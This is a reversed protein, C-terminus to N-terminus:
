IFTLRRKHNITQQGARSVGPPEEGFLVGGTSVPPANFPM